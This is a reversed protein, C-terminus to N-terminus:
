IFGESNILKISINEERFDDNNNQNINLILILDSTWENYFCEICLQKPLMENEKQFMCPSM